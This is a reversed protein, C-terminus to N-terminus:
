LGIVSYKKGRFYYKKNVFTHKKLKQHPFKTVFINKALFEFLFTNKRNFQKNYVHQRRWFKKNVEFILIM